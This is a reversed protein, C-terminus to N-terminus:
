SDFKDSVNYPYSYHFPMNQTLFLASNQTLQDSDNNYITIIREIEKRNEGAYELLMTERKKCSPIFSLLFFTLVYFSYNKM